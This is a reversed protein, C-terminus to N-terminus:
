VEEFDVINFVSEFEARTPVPTFLASEAIVEWGEARLEAVRNQVAEWPYRAGGPGLVFRPKNAYQPLYDYHEENVWDLKDGRRLLYAGRKGDEVWAVAYCDGDLDVIAHIPRDSNRERLHKM